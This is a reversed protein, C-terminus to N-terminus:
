AVMKAQRNLKEAAGSANVKTGLRSYNFWAFSNAKLRQGM